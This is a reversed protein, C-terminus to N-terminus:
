LETSWVTKSSPVMTNQATKSLLSVTVRRLIRFGTVKTSAATQITFLVKVTVFDMKGIALM